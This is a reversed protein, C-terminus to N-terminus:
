EYHEEFFRKYLYRIDPKNYYLSYNSASIAYVSISKDQISPLFVDNTTLATYYKMADAKGKFRAITVLQEDQNIYFSNINFRDLRFYIDNFTSVDYKVDTVTKKHVDILIIIYHLEDLNLNFPMEVNEKQEPKITIQEQEEEPKEMIPKTSSLISLLTKALETVPEKPYNKIIQMLADKLPQEGQVQGIAIAKLYSTKAILAEEDTKELLDDALMITTEWQKNIYARYIEEYKHENEKNTEALKRYYDPDLILKAYDTDPYKTLIINKADETKQTNKLKTYNSWLLFYCPLELEHNPFRKILKELMENSRKLDNLQDFYIIAANYM